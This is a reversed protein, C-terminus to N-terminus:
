NIAPTSRTLNPEKFTNEIPPKITKQTRSDTYIADTYPTNDNKDQDYGGKNNNM